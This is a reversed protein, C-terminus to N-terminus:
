VRAPAEKESELALLPLVRGLARLDEESGDHRYGLLKAVFRAAAPNRAGYDVMERERAEVPLPSAVIALRRRGVQITARPTALLNKYWDAGEGFGSAVIYTEREEDHRLVEVVARRELGSVRGRHEILLFRSGLLGGLGLRYLTIPARYLWRSLGQPPGVERVKELTM